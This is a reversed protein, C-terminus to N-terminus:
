YSSSREVLLVNQAVGNLRRFDGDQLSETELHNGKARLTLFGGALRSPGKVPM